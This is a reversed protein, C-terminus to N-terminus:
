FTGGIIFFGNFGNKSRISVLALSDIFNSLLYYFALSGSFKKLSLPRSNVLSLLWILLLTFVLFSISADICSAIGLLFRLLFIFFALSSSIDVSSWSDYIRNRDDLPPDIFLEKISEARIYYFGLLHYFLCSWIIYDIFKLLFPLIITFLISFSIM